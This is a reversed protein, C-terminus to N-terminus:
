NHLILLLTGMGALGTFFNKSSLFALLTVKVGIKLEGFCSGFNSMAVEPWCVIKLLREHENIDPSGLAELFSAISVKFDEGFRSSWLANAQPFVNKPLYTDIRAQRLM